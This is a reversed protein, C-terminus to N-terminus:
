RRRRYAAFGLVLVALIAAFFSPEPVNATILMQNNEITYEWNENFTKGNVTLLLTKNKIFSDLGSIASGDAYSLVTFTYFGAATASADFELNITLIAGDEFSLGSADEVKFTTSNDLDTSIFVLGDSAVTLTKGNTIEFSAGCELSLKAGGSIEADAESIKVSIDGTQSVYKQGDHYYYDEEYKRVVLSDSASKMQFDKIKGDSLITNKTIIKYYGYISSGLGTSEDYTYYENFENSGRLDTGTFNSNEINSGKFSVNQMNKGSFDWGVYDGTYLGVRSLNGSKYSATSYFQEKTIDSSSFNVGNIIADNFKANTLIAHQFVSDALNARSFDANTYNTNTPGLVTGTEQDYYEKKSFTTDIATVGVWVSDAHSEKSFDIGSVDGTHVDNDAYVQTIAIFCLVFRIYKKINKM